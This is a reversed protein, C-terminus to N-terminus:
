AAGIFIWGTPAHGAILFRFNRVTIKAEPIAYILGHEQSVANWVLALAMVTDDHQGAPAGYRLLGSPLQEAQYAVLEGM